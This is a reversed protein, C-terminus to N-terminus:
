SGPEAREADLLALIRDAYLHCLAVDDTCRSDNKAEDFALYVFRWGWLMAAIRERLGEAGQTEASPPPAPPDLAENLVRLSLLQLECARAYAYRDGAELRPHLDTYRRYLYARLREGAEREASPPPAPVLAGAALTRVVHAYTPRGKASRCVHGPAAGCRPCTVARAEPHRSVQGGGWTALDGQGKAVAGSGEDFSDGFGLHSRVLAADASPPPTPYVWAPCDMSHSTGFPGGGCICAPREEAEREADRARLAARYGASFATLPNASALAPISRAMREYALRAAAEEVIRRERRETEAAVQAPTPTPTTM